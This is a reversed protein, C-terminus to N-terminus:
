ENKADGRQHKFALLAQPLDTESLVRQLAGPKDYWYPGWQKVYHDAGPSQLFEWVTQLRRLHTAHYAMRAGPGWEDLKPLRIGWERRLQHQKEVTMDSTRFFAQVKKDKIVLWATKHGQWPKDDSPSLHVMRRLFEARYVGDAFRVDFVVNPNWLYPVAEGVKLMEGGVGGAQFEWVEDGVEILSPTKM